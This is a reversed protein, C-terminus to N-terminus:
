LQHLHITADTNCRQWRADYQLKLDVLRDDEAVRRLAHLQERLLDRLEAVGAEVDVGLHCLLVAVADEVVEPLAETAVEDAGTLVSATRWPAGRPAATVVRKYM